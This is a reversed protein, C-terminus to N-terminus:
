LRSGNAHEADPSLESRGLLGCWERQAIHAGSIRAVKSPNVNDVGVKDILRSLHVVVWSVSPEELSIHIQIVNDDELEV